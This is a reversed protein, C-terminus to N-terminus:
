LKLVVIFTDSLQKINNNFINNNNGNINRLYREISQQVNRGNINSRFNTNIKNVFYENIINNNINNNNNNRNLNIRNLNNQRLHNNNNNNNNENNDHNNNDNVFHLFEVFKSDKGINNYNDNYRLDVCVSAQFLDSACLEWKIEFINWIENDDEFIRTVWLIKCIFRNFKYWNRTIFRIWM